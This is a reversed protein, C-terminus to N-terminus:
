PLFHFDYKHLQSVSTLNSFTITDGANDTIVVHGTAASAHLSKLQNFNGLGAISHLEIIDHPGAASTGVAFDRIVDHGFPLM